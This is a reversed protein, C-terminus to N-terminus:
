HADADPTIPADLSCAADAISPNTDPVNAADHILACSADRLACTADLACGADASCSTGSCASMTSVLAVGGFTRKARSLKARLADPAAALWDIQAGCKCQADDDGVDRGCISCNTISM